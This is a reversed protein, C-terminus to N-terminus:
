QVCDLSVHDSGPSCIRAYFLQIHLVLMSKYVIHETDICCEKSTLIVYENLKHHNTHLVIYTIHDM